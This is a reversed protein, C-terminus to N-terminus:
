LSPCGASTAFSMKTSVGGVKGEVTIRNPTILTVAARNLGRIMAKRLALAQTCRGTPVAVVPKPVFPKVVLVPKRVFPKVVIVPKRVPPQIVVAPKRAFPKVAVVPKRVAPKVVVTPKRIVPKVIVVPKRIVPKIEVVPKKVIVDVQAADAEAVVGGATGLAVLAAVAIRTIFNTM